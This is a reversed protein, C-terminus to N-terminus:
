MIIKIIGFHRHFINKNRVFTNTKEKKPPIVKSESHDSLLKERM